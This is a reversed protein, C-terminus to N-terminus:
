SHDLPRLPYPYSRSLMVFTESGFLWARTLWLAHKPWPQLPSLHGKLSCTSSTVCRWYRIALWLGTETFLVASIARPNLGLIRRLYIHQVSSLQVLPAMRVDLAVECGSILHPDVHTQYLTFAAWRPLEAVYSEISLCTNAIRRAVSAKREAHLAFIDRSKSSFLLGVYTYSQVVNIPKGNVVM